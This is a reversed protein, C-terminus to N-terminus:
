RTLQLSVPKASGQSTVARGAAESEFLILDVDAFPGLRTQRWGALEPRAAFWRRWFRVNGAGGYIFFRGSTALTERSLAAAYQEAEPSTEFPLLYARARIPYVSLHAYLFGPLSYDPRWVPFRSEIFPSPCIVPTAPDAQHNIAQAAARWDSNHHLPWPERWHGMMVLVGLALAATLPKWRGPPIHWAALATAALAAGPLALSLYRTVFVSDGTIWSFAFLSLPHCLWWGIVLTLSAGSPPGSGRSWRLCRRVLWAGICCYALLRYQLSNLLERGSPVPTVVHARAERYLSLADLLVPLLLVVLAAFAGGAKLWSVPTDGQALRAAAYLILLIYFPWFILHVRWVLAALAVFLLADLWGASDFWRVLFWLSAAALCIGLAYPRADAAHYNIGRLGLCAFAAFWGAEPHILRAALRAVFFLAVAMVLISPLRYAVESAGLLADAGRPLYYYASKWVQPVVALSPHQSGYHIVFATGIEDIWFSSALPMLWLRAVCLVMLACLLWDLQWARSRAPSFDAKAELGMLKALCDLPCSLLSRTSRPNVKATRRPFCLPM